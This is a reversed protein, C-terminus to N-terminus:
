NWAGIVTLWKEMQADFDRWHQLAQADFTYVAAIGSPLLVTRVCQATSQGAVPALCKAVFPNPSLADYWVSEGAYGDSGLMPKGVLGPVGQLQDEGFQHLYVRDLLSASSRARSRPLLSVSIPLPDGATDPSFLIRLDIQNTFGDRIQEGYRFWARPISLERGSITQVIPDPDNLTPPPTADGRGLEDILYAAGVALLLVLVAIGALNYGVSHHGHSRGSPVSQSSLEAM